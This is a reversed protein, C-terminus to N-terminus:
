SHNKTMENPSAFVLRLPVVCLVSFFLCPTFIFFSLPTHATHLHVCLCTTLMNVKCSQVLQQQAAQNRNSSAAHQAAAITQTAAAAAQKAANQCSASMRWSLCQTLMESAIFIIKIQLVSKFLRQVNAALWPHKNLHGTLSWLCNVYFVSLWCHLCPISVWFCSTFQPHKQYSYINSVIVAQDCVFLCGM